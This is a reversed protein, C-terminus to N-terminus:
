TSLSVTCSCSQNPVYLLLPFPPTHVWVNKVKVGFTPWHYSLATAERGKGGLVFLGQLGYSILNPQNGSITQVHYCLSFHRRRNSILGMNVLGYSTTKSISSGFVYFSILFVSKWQYQSDADLDTQRMKSTYM